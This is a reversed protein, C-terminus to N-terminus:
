NISSGLIIVSVVFTCNLHLGWKRQYPNEPSFNLMEPFYDHTNNLM